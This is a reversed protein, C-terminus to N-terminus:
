SKKYGNLFFDVVKKVKKERQEKSLEYTKYGTITNSFEPERILLCFEEILADYDDYKLIKEMNHLSFYDLFIKKVILEARTKFLKSLKGDEKYGESYMIRGLAIADDCSFIEIYEKGFQYLFNELSQDEEQILKKELNEFFDEIEDFVVVEFFGEKNGFQKYITSLSGGAIKVIDALNTKEFGNKLFMELGIEKLKQCRIETKKSIKKTEMSVEKKESKANYCLIQLKYYM